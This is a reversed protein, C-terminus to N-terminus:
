RLHPLREDIRLKNEQQVTKEVRSGQIMTM